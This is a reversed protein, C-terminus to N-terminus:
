EDEIEIWSVLDIVIRKNLFGEMSMLKIVREVADVRKVADEVTVYQGGAKSADPEFYTITAVPHQGAETFEIIKRLQQNLMEAEDPELQRMHDTEVLRQEEM